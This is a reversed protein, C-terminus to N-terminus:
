SLGFRSPADPHRLWTCLGGIEALDAARIHNQLVWWM